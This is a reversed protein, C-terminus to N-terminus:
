KNIRTGGFPDDIVFRWTGDPQKRLVEVTNTLLRIQNGSKPDRYVTTCKMRTTALSGDGSIVTRIDDITTKTKMSIFEENHKRIADVKMLDGSETLLVADPEYLAVSTEIDGKEMADILIRDCDEPNYAPIFKVAFESSSRRAMGKM